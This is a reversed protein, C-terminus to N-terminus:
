VKSDACRAVAVSFPVRGLELPLKQEPWREKGAWRRGGGAGHTVGGPGRGAGRGRSAACLWPSSRAEAGWSAGGREAVLVLQPGTAAREAVLAGSPLAASLSKQGFALSRLIVYLFCWFAFADKM